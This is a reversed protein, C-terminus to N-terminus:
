FKFREVIEELIKLNEEYFNSTLLKIKTERFHPIGKFYNIYHRRMTLVGGKEGKLLVSEKLHETCIEVKKQLIPEDLKVGTSLFHKINYFIWPQGIAARGIMIADTGYKDFYDKAKEPSDIDGNGIVPIIIRPNNKVEGILTWDAIGKLMQERTRGHITIAKIGSDQLREAAEAINKSKEDWGLRTKATVPLKVAKVIKETMAAMKPIDKMLGSGAGRNTIKKVPCGFNIDLLDPKAEEALRAAEVMVDINHGYLQIGIPHEEPLIEMKRIGKKIGRILCESSIFETYMFDAGFRKCMTRFSYDTVDEMPALFVPKEGFLLNGIKM